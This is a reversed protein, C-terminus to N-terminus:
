APSSGRGATRGLAAGGATVALLFLAPAIPWRAQAAVALAGVAAVAAYLLAVPAHGWRLALRQYLHERHAETLREGRLWRSALTAAADLFIPYLPLWVLWLPVRAELVLLVGGVAFLLGLAGSGSDGLFIKAPAWNWVLFGLATGALALGFVWAFSHSPAVLLMYAGFTAAQLGILGDIGDMFNVVNVCSVAWVCWIAIWVLAPLTGPAAQLAFLAFGLGAILHLALRPAVPLSYRDDLFGTVAIVVVATLALWLRPPWSGAVGAWALAAILVLVVAVGAGRPTPVSHSSRATPRDLMGRRLAERRVLAVGAFTAVATALFLAAASSRV